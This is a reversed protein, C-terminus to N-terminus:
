QPIGERWQGCLQFFNSGLKHFSKPSRNQKGGWGDTLKYKERRRPARAIKPGIRCGGGGRGGWSLSCLDKIIQLPPPPFLNSNPETNGM